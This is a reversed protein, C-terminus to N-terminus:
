CSSGTVTATWDTAATFRIGGADGTTQDAYVTQVTQTGETLVIDRNEENESCATMALRLMFICGVTFLRNRM